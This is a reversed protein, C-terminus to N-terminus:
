KGLRKLHRSLLDRLRVTDEISLNIAVADARDRKSSKLWISGDRDTTNVVVKDKDNVMCLFEEEDDVDPVEDVDSGAGDAFENLWKAIERASEKTLLIQGQEYRDYRTILWANSDSDEDVKLKVDDASRNACQVKLSKQTM